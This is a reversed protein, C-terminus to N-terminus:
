TGVHMTIELNRKTASPGRPAVSVVLSTHNWDGNKSFRVEYRGAPINAFCFQGDDRAVCAAIRRQPTQKEVNQPYSLLLYDPKDFVEVLVDPIIKGNVDRVTGAIRTHKRKEGMVIHENAGSRTTEGVAPSCKCREGSSSGASCFFIMAIRIILRM